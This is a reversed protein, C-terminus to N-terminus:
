GLYGMRTERAVALKEMFPHASATYIEDGDPDEANSNM